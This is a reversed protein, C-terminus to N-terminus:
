RASAVSADGTDPIRALVTKVWASGRVFQFVIRDKNEGTLAGAGWAAYYGDLLLGRDDQRWTGRTSGLQFTGDGHLELTPFGTRLEEGNVSWSALQYRGLQIAPPKQAAPDASTLDIFMQGDIVNRVKLLHERGGADRLVYREGILVPVSPHFQTDGFRRVGHVDDIRKDTVRVEGRDFVTEKAQELSLAAPVMFGFTEAFVPTSLFVASLTLLTPLKMGPTCHLRRALPAEREFRVAPGPHFASAPHPQVWRRQGGPLARAPSFASPDAGIHADM